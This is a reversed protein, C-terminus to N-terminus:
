RQARRARHYSRVAAPLARPLRALRRLYALALGAKGRSATADNFRMLDPSPFLRGFFYAVKSRLTPQEIFRAISVAGRAADIANLEIEVAGHVDKVGLREAVAAGTPFYQLGVAFAPLADLRRALEAAARWTPEDYTLIGRLLDDIAKGRALGSQTAHTALQLARGAANLRRCTQGAVAHLETEPWLVDFVEDDPIGSGWITTHLDVDPLSPHAWTTAHAAREVARLGPLLEAFGLSRLVANAAELDGARVLVDADVYHRPRDPYLDALASGKLLIANVGAAELEGLLRAATADARMTQVLLDSVDKVM